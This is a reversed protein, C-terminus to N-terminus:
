EIKYPNKFPIERRAFQQLFNSKCDNLFVQSNSFEKKNNNDKDFKDRLGCYLTKLLFNIVPTVNM